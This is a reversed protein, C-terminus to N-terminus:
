LALELDGVDVLNIELLAAEVHLTIARPHGPQIRAGVVRQEFGGM